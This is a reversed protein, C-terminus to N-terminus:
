KCVGAPPPDLTLGTRAAMSPTAANADNAIIVWCM